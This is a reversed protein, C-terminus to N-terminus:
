DSSFSALWLRFKLGITSIYGSQTFFVKSSSDIILTTPFVTIDFKKALKGDRDNLVLLSLNHEQLYKKLELDDGSKVAVSIVRSEKAISDLNSIEVRCTPCWTAWFHLVTVEDKFSNNDVTVGDISRVDIQPLYELSPARIIGIINLAVISVLILLSVEKLKYWIKM